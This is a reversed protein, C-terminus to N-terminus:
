RTKISWRQTLTLRPDKRDLHSEQRAQRGRRRRQPRKSLRMLRRKVAAVDPVDKKGRAKRKNKQTNLTAAPDEEVLTKRRPKRRKLTVRIEKPLVNRMKLSKRSRRRM